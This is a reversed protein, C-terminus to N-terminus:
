EGGWRWMSVQRHSTPERLGWLTQGVACVAAGVFVVRAMPTRTAVRRSATNHMARSPAIPAPASTWSLAQTSCTSPVPPMMDDEAGRSSRRRESRESPRGQRRSVPSTSARDRSAAGTAERETLRQSRREKEPVCVRLCM